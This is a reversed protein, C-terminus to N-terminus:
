WYGHFTTAIFSSRVGMASVSRIRIDYNQGARVPNILYSTQEAADVFASQYIDESVLKWQVEYRDVFANISATWGVEIGPLVSGDAQLVTTAETTIPTRPPDIDFPDPLDTDDYTQEESAEDYAYLTSDYEVCQLDVTGDYRLTLSEM